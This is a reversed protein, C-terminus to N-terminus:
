LKNEIIYDIFDRVAGYGGNNESIFINKIGKVEKRADHPCGALGVISLLDLDNTDDGIFAVENISTNLEKCIDNVKEIKGKNWAGDAFYNLTGLKILKDARAKNIGRIETTVWATKINTKEKLLYFGRGDKHSFRKSIEGNVGYECTGDTLTGDIDSVFLKIM